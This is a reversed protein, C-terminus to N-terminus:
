RNGEQAFSVFDLPPKERSGTIGAFCWERGDDQDWAVKRAFLVEQIQSRPQPFGPDIGQVESITAGPLTLPDKRM